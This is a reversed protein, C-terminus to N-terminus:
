ACPMSSCRASPLFHPCRLPGRCLAYKRGHLPAARVAKLFCSPYMPHPTMLFISTEQLTTFSPTPRSELATVVSVAAEAGAAASTVMATPMRCHGYPLPEIGHDDQDTSNKKRLKSGIPPSLPSPPPPLPAHELSAAWLLSALCAMPVM